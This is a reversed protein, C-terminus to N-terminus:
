PNLWPRAKIEAIKALWDAQTAEGRQAKFFLPDAELAYAARRLAAFDAAPPPDAPEPTNGQALWALYHQYDTNREDAPIRAQDATRIIDTNPTTLQYM